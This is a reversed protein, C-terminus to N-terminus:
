RDPDWDSAPLIKWGTDHAATKIRLVRLPWTRVGGKAAQEEVHFRYLEISYAGRRGLTKLLKRLPNSPHWYVPRDVRAIFAFAPFRDQFRQAQSRTPTLMKNARAETVQDFNHSVKLKLIGTLTKRGALDLRKMEAVAAAIDAEELLVADRRLIKWNPITAEKATLTVGGLLHERAAQDGTGELARLYAEALARAEAAPDATQPVPQSTAAAAAPAILILCACLTSTRANM